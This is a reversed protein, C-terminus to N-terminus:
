HCHAGDHHGSDHSHTGMSSPVNLAPNAGFFGYPKLTFKTSDVPMVPWDEIRPFHTMGFTHWLVIDEGELSRNAAMYKPLGDGGPNQNVLDGSPYREEPSYRTVWLEKTTFQARAAISSDPSAMLSPSQLGYLAYGVPRGLRNKKEPNVIHWVRGISADAERAGDAESAIMTTKSTFANGWPNADNMPLRQADVELVSNTLGDVMMDLRASFLHQHFPAGLGPAVESAHPYGEGPYASTYLIGTLKAECEITGDLYLYWYFGYDYNGVTTFFSIVLRRQRRTENAGSFGDTHKWLVGYDEEHMCIANKIVRPAGMEDSLTADFYHIEGLCDCGLQLSNACRGFLYESTDFYNQWYRTPSPDAYPVVMEAISGRYMVPRDVGDDTFTLHHLILGERADYSVGLKWNAWEVHSGTVTFSPGEPQTIQIPKLSTLPAGQQIPDQFNGAEMPVPFQKYDVIRVVEHTILDIYACLGDVPHAWPQDEPHNQVFPAVRIMRRGEEGPNDYSGASLAICVTKDPDVGRANLAECWQADKALLPGVLDFEEELLPIQGAAGDIVTDRLVSNTDLSVVVDSARGNGVNLLLVRVTREPVPGTGAEAALVDAKHPELLGVYAFRTAPELRGANMLVQRVRTIEEATLSDLSHGAQEHAAAGTAEILTM